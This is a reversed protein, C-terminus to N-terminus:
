LFTEKQVDTWLYRQGNFFLKGIFPAGFSHKEVQVKAVPDYTGDDRMERNLVVILNSKDELEGTDRLFDSKRQTEGRAQRNFQSLLMVPIGMRESLTKLAEAQDGRGQASNRSWRNDKEYAIKTMYDVIVVDLPKRAARLEVANVIRSAPWGPAHIYTISGSWGMMKQLACRLDYNTEGRRVQTFSLGSHRCARRDLMVQHSLELHVFAVHFGTEAWKEAACEAFATKGAGSAAAVISLAGPVLENVSCLASWPLDIRPKNCATEEARRVQDVMYSALSSVWELESEVDQSPMAGNVIGCIRQFVDRSNDAPQYCTETIAPALLLFRRLAAAESVISAYHRAHVATPTENVLQVLYSMGGVMQLEGRRELESSVTVPDPESVQMIARFIMGHTERYFAEGNVGLLDFVEVRQEPDMLMSGLVAQEAAIDQPPLRENM